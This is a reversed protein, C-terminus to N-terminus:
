EAQQLEGPFVVRFLGNVRQEVVGNAAVNQRSTDFRVGSWPMITERGPIDLNLLAARVRQPDTSGANDIAEALVLVATFTGAAIDSMPRGFREEYREMVAKAIGSRGAIERSWATSYFLGEGATGAAQLVQPESVGGGFVFIQPPRYDMTDMTKLVRVADSATSTMLFLVEPKKEDRLEQLEPVLNPKDPDFKVMGHEDYVAQPALDHLVQHLSEGPADSTYLMSIRKPRVKEQQLTSYIAEGFMRDTPGTRFFWTLGRETLYGAPSDGNVFPIGLRETRQSAAETVAADYAGVLGAVREETVLRDAESTGADPNSKTDGAVITLKAGGLGALRESGVGALSAAGEDGNVLAAALEAGHQAQTGAARSPGTTPALVGIRVESVSSTEDGSEGGTCAALPVVAAVLAIMSLWRM